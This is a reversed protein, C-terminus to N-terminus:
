KTGSRQLQLPSPVVVSKPKNTLVNVFRVTEALSTTSSLMHKVRVAMVLHRRRCRRCMQLKTPVLVEFTQFTPLLVARLHLSMVTSLRRLPKDVNVAREEHATSERGRQFRSHHV